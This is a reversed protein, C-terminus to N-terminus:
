GLGLLRLTAADERGDYFADLVARFPTAEDADGAARAFLTMSSRLKLDDPAGFIAQVTRGTHGLLLGACERLRAGLVPHALYARAQDLDELAFRRATPSRGLGRLQPFVFWMWHSQKRGASLEATVAPWVPDQAALFHDFM